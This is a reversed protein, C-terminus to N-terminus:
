EGRSTDVKKRMRTRTKRVASNSVGLINAMEGTGLGLKKLALYRLEAPTLNPQLANQNELFGPHVKEFVQRFNLWDDDTLITNNTLQELYESRVGSQALKDMEQRLNEAMASKKRFQQTLVDLDNKATVLATMQQKRQQHLQQFYLYALLMVLGLIVFAGNRLWTQFEMEQEVLQIKQTFNQVEIRHSLQELKHADNRRALSDQLPKALKTYRISAAYEGKLEHYRARCEFYEINNFYNEYDNGIAQYIEDLRNILGSLEGMQQLELKTSVLVQLADYELRLAIRDNADHTKSLEYGRQAYFESEKLRGQKVLMAALDLSALGDWQQYFIRQEPDDSNQGQVFDLIQLAYKIATSYNGQKQFISQLHNLVLVYTQRDRETPQIYQEAIQFIQFARNMDDLEYMFKANHYLLWDLNYPVFREFGLEQMLDMERLINTYLAGLSLKDVYHKEFYLYHQAILLGIRFDKKTAEDVLKELREINQKASTKIKERQQFYYFQLNWNMQWDDNEKAFDMLLEYTREFEISDMKEFQLSYLYTQRQSISLDNLAKIESSLTQSSLVQQLLLFLLIYKISISRQM